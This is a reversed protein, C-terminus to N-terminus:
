GGIGRMFVDQEYLSRGRLHEELFSLYAPHLRALLDLRTETTKGEVKARELETCLALRVKRYHDFFGFPGYWAALVAPDDSARLPITIEALTQAQPKWSEPLETTTNM